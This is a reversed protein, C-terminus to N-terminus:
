HFVTGEPVFYPDKEREQKEAAAIIVDIADNIMQPTFEMPYGIHVDEVIEDWDIEAQNQKRKGISEAMFTALEIVEDWYEQSM